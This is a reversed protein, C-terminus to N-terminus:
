LHLREEQIWQLHHAKRGTESNLILCEEFKVDKPNEIVAIFVKNFAIGSIPNMEFRPEEKVREMLFNVLQANELERMGYHVELFDYLIYEVDERRVNIGM